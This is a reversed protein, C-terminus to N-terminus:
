QPVHRGPKLLQIRVKDSPLLKGANIREGPDFALRGGSGLVTVGERCFESLAAKFIDRLDARRTTIDRAPQSGRSFMEFRQPSLGAGSEFAIWFEEGDDGTAIRPVDSLAHIEEARRESDLLLESDSHTELRM